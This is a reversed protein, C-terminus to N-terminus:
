CRSWAAAPRHPRRRRARPRRHLRDAAEVLAPQRQELAHAPMGARGRMATTPAPAPPTSNVSAMCYRRRLSSTAAPGRGPRAASEGAKGGVRSIRGVCLAATRRRRRAAHQAARPTATCRAVGFDIATEGRAGASARRALRELGVLDDPHGCAPPAGHSRSVPSASSSSPKMRTRSVRCLSVSGSTKAAPSQALMIPWGSSFAPTNATRM